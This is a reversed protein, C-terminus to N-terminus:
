KANLTEKNADLMKDATKALKDLDDEEWISLLPRISDRMQGLFLTRIITENGKGPALRKMHALVETPKMGVTEVGQLLRRLKTEPM